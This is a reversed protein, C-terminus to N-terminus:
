SSKGSYQDLVDSLAEAFHAGAAMAEELTNGSAGVEVLLDLPALDQNFRETRLNLPRMIGAWTGSMRSQLVAALSLNQRWNPHELGGADTGVVLMLQASTEDGLQCAMRMQQGNEDEVADRHIDLVLAITPYAALNEAIVQRSRNYAGSFEPEDCITTDHVAHYGRQELVEAMREAVAIVSKEPNQTRYVGTESDSYSESGHTHMLLITPEESQFDLGEPLAPLDPFSIEYDTENRLEISVGGDVHIPTPSPPLTEKQRAEEDWAEEVETVPIAAAHETEADTQEATQVSEEDPVTEIVPSEEVIAMGLQNAALWTSIVKGRRALEASGTGEILGIAGLLLIVAAALASGRKM